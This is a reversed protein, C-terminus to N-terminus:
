GNYIVEEIKLNDLSNRYINILDYIVSITTNHSKTM